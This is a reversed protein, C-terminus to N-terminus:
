STAQSTATTAADEALLVSLGCRDSGGTPGEYEEIAAAAVDSLEWKGPEVVAGRQLRRRVNLALEDAVRDLDVMMQIEEQTIRLVDATQEAESKDELNRREWGDMPSLLYHRRLGALWRKLTIFEQRTLNVCQLDNGDSGWMQLAYETDNPTGNVWDPAENDRPKQEVPKSETTEIKRSAKLAAPKLKSNPM